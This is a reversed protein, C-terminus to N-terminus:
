SGGSAGGQGEALRELRDIMDNLEKGYVASVRLNVAFRTDIPIEKSIHVNVGGYTKNVDLPVLTRVVLTDNIRLPVIQGTNSIATLQADIPMNFSLPISFYNPLIDSVPFTKEVFVTTRLPSSLTIEKQQITRLDGAIAKLSSRDAESLGHPASITLYLSSAALLLALVSLIIPLSSFMGGSPSGDSYPNSESSPSSAPAPVGARALLGSPLKSTSGMAM